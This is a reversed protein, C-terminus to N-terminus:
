GHEHTCQVRRCLAYNRLHGTAIVIAGALTAVREATEGLLDHGLIATLILIALGSLGLLLVLSDKHTSCGLTLAVASLPIVLWLLWVHFAEQGFMTTSLAPFVGILLPLSLCHIACMASTSVALKDITPTVTSLSAL